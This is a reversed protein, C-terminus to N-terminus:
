SSPLKVYEEINANLLNIAGQWFDPEQLNVKLHKKALEEIGM